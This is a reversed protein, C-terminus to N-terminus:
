LWPLVERKCEIRMEDRLGHQDIVAVVELGVGAARLRDTPKVTQVAAFDGYLIHSTEAAVQRGRIVEGGNTTQIECPWSGGVQSWDAAVGYTPLGSEDTKGNHRYFVASHRRAGVNKRM